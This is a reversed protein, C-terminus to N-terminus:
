GKASPAKVKPKPEVVPMDSVPMLFRNSILSKLNRWGSGDVIEGVPIFSGDGTPIKKTVKYVM